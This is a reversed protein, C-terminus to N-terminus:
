LRLVGGNVNILPPPPNPNVHVKVEKLNGPQAPCANGGWAEVYFSYPAPSFPLREITLVGNTGLHYVVENEGTVIGSNDIVPILKDADRYWYFQVTEDQDTISPRLQVTERECIVPEDDELVQVESGSETITIERIVRCEPDNLESVILFYTGPALGTATKENGAVQLGTGPHDKRWRILHRDLTINSEIIMIQGNQDNCSSNESATRLTVGNNQSIQVPGLTIECGEADRVRVTYSGAALGTAERTTQGDSWLYTYEGWGGTPNATAVNGQCALVAPTITGSLAEDPKKIIITFRIICTSNGSGQRVEFFYTGAPFNKSNTAENDIYDSFGGGLGITKEPSFTGAGLRYRVRINNGGSISPVTFRIRGFQDGICKINEVAPSVIINRNDQITFSHVFPNAETRNQDRILLRYNGQALNGVTFTNQTILTWDRIIEGQSNIVKYFGNPNINSVTFTASGDNQCNEATFSVNAVSIQAYGESVWLTLCLFTLVSFYPCYLKDM